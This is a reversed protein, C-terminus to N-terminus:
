KRLERILENIESNADYIRKAKNDEKALLYCNRLFDNDDDKKFLKKTKDLKVVLETNSAEGTYTSLFDSLDKLYYVYWDNIIVSEAHEITKKAGGEQNIINLFFNNSHQFVALSRNIGKYTQNAFDTKFPTEKLRELDNDHLLLIIESKNSDDTQQPDKDIIFDDSLRDIWTPLPKRDKSNRPIDRNGLPWIAYISYEVNNDNESLIEYFSIRDRLTLKTNNRCSNGSEDASQRFPIKFGIEKDINIADYELYKEIDEYTMEVKLFHSEQKEGKEEEQKQPFLAILENIEKIFLAIENQKQNDSETNFQNHLEMLIEELGKRKDGKLSSSVKQILTQPFYKLCKKINVLQENTLDRNPQVRPKPVFENQSEVLCSNKERLFDQIITPMSELTIVSGDKDKTDISRICSNLYDVFYKKLGDSVAECRKANAFITDEEFIKRTSIILTKNRM